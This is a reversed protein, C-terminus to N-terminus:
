IPIPSLFVSTFQCKKRQSKGNICHKIQTWGYASNKAPSSNYKSM